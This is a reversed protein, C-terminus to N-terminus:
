EIIYWRFPHSNYSSWSTSNESFRGQISLTQAASAFNQWKKHTIVSNAELNCHRHTTQTHAQIRWQPFGAEWHVPSKQDFLMDSINTYLAVPAILAPVPSLNERKFLSNWLM